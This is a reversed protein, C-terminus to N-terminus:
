LYHASHTPAQCLEGNDWWWVDHDDQWCMKHGYGEDTNEESQHDNM